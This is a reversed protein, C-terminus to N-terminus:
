IVLSELCAENLLFGSKLCSLENQTLVNSQKAMVKLNKFLTQQNLSPQENLRLVKKRIEDAIDAQYVESDGTKMKNLPIMLKHPSENNEWSLVLKPSLKKNM